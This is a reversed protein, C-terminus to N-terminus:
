CLFRGLFIHPAERRLYVGERAGAPASEGALRPLSFCAPCAGVPVDCVTLDEDNEPAAPGHCDVRRNRLLFAAKTKRSAKARWATPTGIAALTYPNGRPKAGRLSSPKPNASSIAARKGSDEGQQTSVGHWCPMFMRSPIKRWSRNSERVEKVPTDGNKGRAACIETKEGPTDEGLSTRWVPRNTRCAPPLRRSHKIRM